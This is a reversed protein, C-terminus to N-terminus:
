YDWVRGKRKFGRWGFDNSSVTLQSLTSFKCLSDPSSSNTFTNNSIYLLQFAKWSSIRGLRDPVFHCRFRRLIRAVRKILFSISAVTTFINNNFRSFKKLKSFRFIWGGSSLSFRQYGDLESDLCINDCM